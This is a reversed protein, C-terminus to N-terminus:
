PLLRKVRLRLWIAIERAEFRLASLAYAAPKKRPDAPTTDIGLRRAAYERYQCRLDAAIM